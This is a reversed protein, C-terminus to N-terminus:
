TPKIVWMCGGLVVSHGDQGWRFHLGHLTYPLRFAINWIHPHRTLAGQTGMCVDCCCVGSLTRAWCTLYLFAVRCHRQVGHFVAWLCNCCRGLQRGQLLAEAPCLLPIRNCHNSIQVGAFRMGSLQQTHRM